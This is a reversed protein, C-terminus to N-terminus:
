IACKTIDCYGLFIKLHYSHINHENNNHFVESINIAAEHNQVNDFVLVSRNLLRQLLPLDGSTPPTMLLVM